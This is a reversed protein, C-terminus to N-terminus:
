LLVSTKVNNEKYKVEVSILEEFRDQELDFSNNTVTIMQYVNEIDFLYVRPSLFLETLWNQEIMTIYETIVSGENEQTKLYVNEGSKTSDYVFNGQYWSGFQKQFTYDKVKGGTMKNHLFAFQDFAGYENVWVLYNPMYCWESIYEVKILDSENIQVTFSKVNTMTLGFDDILNQTTLNLQVIQLGTIDQVSSTAISTGNADFTEVFVEFAGNVIMSLYVNQNPLAKIKPTNTLWKQLPYTTFDTSEWVSNSLRGKFIKINESQLFAENEPETGYNEIVKLSIFGSTYAEQYTATSLQPANLYGKVVNSCDFHAKNGIEPFVKVRDILSANFYTEVIFSFNPQAFETSTFEFKLPNDSTSWQEPISVFAVAM